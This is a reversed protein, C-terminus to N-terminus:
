LVLDAQVITTVHQLGITFDAKGDGNVDGSLFLNGKVVEFRLEGAERGFKDQGIFTFADNAGTGLIADLASLDIKDGQAHSFDEVKDATKTTKGTDGQRFAFTDAGLGGTMTDRGVGGELWDAGKGGLITDNGKNGLIRCGNDNAYLYDDGAGSILTNVHTGFQIFVNNSLGGVSSFGGDALTVYQTMTYGSVDLTNNEGQNYIAVVPQKNVGFDYIDHLPGTINTNFGYVQGGSFPTNKSEGYLQQMGIMDLLMATHPATRYYGEQTTGWDTYKIPNEGDYKADSDAWSIYSMITYMRNDFASYQQKSPDVDGNYAGGHGLGLLHGVEHILTSLGYGGLKNPDGSLDFGAVSTDISILAQGKISGLVDDHGNTHQSSCYAGGDDGRRLLVNASGGSKVEKFTVDAVGSWSAFAKLFAAKETATFHSNADFSYTIVAGTGATTSGWKFATSGTAQWYSPDKSIHGNADLGTIFTLEDELTPSKGPAEVPDPRHGALQPRRFAIDATDIQFFAHTDTDQQKFKSM